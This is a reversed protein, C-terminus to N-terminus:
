VVGWSGGAFSGELLPMEQFCRYGDADSAHSLKADKKNPENGDWKMQKFDRILERCNPHVKYRIRGDATLMASNFTNIRDVVGPNSAPVNTEYNIGINDLAQHLVQWSSRGDSMQTIRGTADGYLQLSPWAWGGEDAILRELAAVMKIITMRPSHLVCYATLVDESPLRQGIVAHMGPNRNFDVAMHLPLGRILHVSSDRNRGDADDYNQYLPNGTLSPPRQQFLSQWVYEGVALRRNDLAALDYREPWLAEGEHRGIVDDKEAIAPLNLLEWEGGSDEDSLLKGALDDEHWRTMVVIAAAGPELRTVATSQWWEWVKDRYTASNAEESNKIPDDVILIDAGRGTIPGGVGATVMGGRQETEWADAATTDGALSLGLVEGHEVISNRVRRGWTAAYDAAYSTLIIRREPFLHLYWVGFWHSILTSKAHRPPM